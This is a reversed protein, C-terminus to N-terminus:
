VFARAMPDVRVPNEAADHVTSAVSEIRWANWFSWPDLVMWSVLIEEREPITAFLIDRVEREALQGSM